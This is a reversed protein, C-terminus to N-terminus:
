VAGIVGWPALETLTLGHDGSLIEPHLDETGPTKEICLTNKLIKDRVNGLGTEAVADEALSRAAETLRRRQNEIIRDRLELTRIERQAARAAAIAQDVTEFIGIGGTPHAARTAPPQPRTARDAPPRSPPGIPPASISGPASGRRPRADIEATIRDVIARIETESLPM